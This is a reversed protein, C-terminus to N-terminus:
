QCGHHKVEKEWNLIEDITPAHLLKLSAHEAPLHIEYYYGTTLILICGNNNALLMRMNEAWRPNIRTFSVKTEILIRRGDDLSYTFDAMFRTSENIQVWGDFIFRSGDWGAALLSEHIIRELQSPHEIQSLLKKALERAEIESITDAKVIQETTEEDYIPIQVHVVDSLSVSPVTVGKTIKNLQAEFAKKGTESTLYKVLYNESVAFPRIIFLNNSAVAPLDDETVLAIKNQGFNKTLLIDGDQLLQKACKQATATDIYAKPTKIKGNSIDGGRLYGVGETKYESSSIGKGLIVTAIDGLERVPRNDNDIKGAQNEPNYFAPSLNIPDVKESFYIDQEIAKGEFVLSTLMDFTWATSFWTSTQQRNDGLIIMASPLMYGGILRNKLSAVGTIGYKDVIQKRFELDGKSFLMASPGLLLTLGNETGDDIRIKEIRENKSEECKQISVSIGEVHTDNDCYDKHFQSTAYQEVIVQLVKKLITEDIM